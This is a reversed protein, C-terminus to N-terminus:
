SSSVPRGISADARYSSGEIQTSPKVQFRSLRRTLEIALFTPQMQMPAPMKMASRQAMSTNLKKWWPSSDLVFVSSASFFISASSCALNYGPRVAKM